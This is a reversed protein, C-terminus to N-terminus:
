QIISALFSPCSNALFAHALNFPKSYNNVEAESLIENTGYDSWGANVIHGVIRDKDHEINTPKHVFNKTYAIATDTSIGDGNKNFKNVVAANFAVGLLDSNDEFDIEGPVLSELNELSAKSIFSAGVECPLIEADFTATYLYDKKESKSKKKIFKM